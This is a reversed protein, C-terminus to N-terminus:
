SWNELKDIAETAIERWCAAAHQTDQHKPGLHVYYSKFKKDWLALRKKVVYIFLWRLM